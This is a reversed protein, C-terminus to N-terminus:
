STDAGPRDEAFERQRVARGQPDARDLPQRGVTTPDPVLADGGVDDDLAGAVDRRDHGVRDALHGRRLDGGQGVRLEGAPQREDRGDVVGPLQGTLGRTTELALDDRRGAAAGARRDDPAGNLADPPATQPEM